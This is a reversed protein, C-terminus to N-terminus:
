KKATKVAARVWTALEGANELVDAPVEYYSHLSQRARPRFPNMGRELYATRTAESTRFYLRGKFIIGFFEEGAYLGFGGFMARSKLGRLERLQDLVFDKLSDDKM